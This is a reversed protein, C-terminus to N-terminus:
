YCVVVGTGDGAVRVFSDNADKKSLVIALYYVNGIRKTNWEFLIFFIAFRPKQVMIIDLAHKLHELLDITHPKHIKYVENEQIHISQPQPMSIYRPLPHNPPIM